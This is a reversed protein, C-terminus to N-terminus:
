RPSSRSGRSTKSSSGRGGAAPVGKIRPWEEEVWNAIATDDRELAKRAPRQRSWGLRRRLTDWTQTQGLRIGTVREIVDAVRALTWLDTGFGNARPGKKLAVVVETLQEDSLRPLRGARGTGALAARGGSRWLRYWESVAQASVDLARAVEAQSKGRRFMDAARLRRQKMAEFDRRPRVPKAAGKEKKKDGSAGAASSTVV